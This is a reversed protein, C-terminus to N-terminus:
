LLYTTCILVEDPGRNQKTKAEIALGLWYSYLEISCVAVRIPV